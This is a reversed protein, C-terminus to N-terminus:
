DYSHLNENSKCECYFDIWDKRVCSGLLPEPGSRGQWGGACVCVVDESNCDEFSWLDAHVTWSFTYLACPGSFDPQVPLKNLNVGIGQKVFLPTFVSSFVYVCAGLAVAIVRRDVLHCYSKRLSVTSKFGPATACKESWSSNTVYFQPM